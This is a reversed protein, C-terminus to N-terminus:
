IGVVFCFIVRVNAVINYSKDTLFPLFFRGIGGKGKKREKDRDRERERERHSM